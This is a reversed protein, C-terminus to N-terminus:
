WRKEIWELAQKLNPKFTHQEGGDDYTIKIYWQREPGNSCYRMLIKEPEPTM